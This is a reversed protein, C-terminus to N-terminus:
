CNLSVAVLASTELIHLPHCAARGPPTLSGPFVFRFQISSRSYINTFSFRHVNTVSIQDTQIPPLEGIMKSFIVLPLEDLLYKLSDHM